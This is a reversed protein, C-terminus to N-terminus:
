PFLHHAEKSKEIMSQLLFLSKADLHAEVAKFCGFCETLDKAYCAYKIGKRYHIEYEKYTYGCIKLQKFYDILDKAYNPHNMLGMYLKAHEAENWGAEELLRFCEHLTEISIKTYLPDKILTQYKEELSQDNFKIKNEVNNQTKKKKYTLNIDELCDLEDRKRKMETDPGSKM